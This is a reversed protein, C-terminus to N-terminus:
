GAAAAQRSDSGPSRSSADRSRDDLRLARREHQLSSSSPSAARRRPARRPRPTLSRGCRGSRGRGTTDRRRQGGNEPVLAGADDHADARRDGLDYRAIADAHGEVAHPSQGLQRAPLDDYQWRKKSCLKAAERGASPDLTTEAVDARVEEALRAERRVRDGRLATDHLDGSPISSSTAAGNPQPMWVPAPATSFLKAAGGPLVSATNPAPM